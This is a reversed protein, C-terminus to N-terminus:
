RGAHVTVDIHFGIQEGDNCLLRGALRSEHTRETHRSEVTKTQAALQRRLISQAIVVIGPGNKMRQRNMDFFLRDSM